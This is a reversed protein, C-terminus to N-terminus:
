VLRAVHELLPPMARELTDYMIRYDEPGGGWPDEVIGDAPDPDWRRLLVIPENFAAVVDSPRREVGGRLRTAERLNNTDMVVLFLSEAFDADSVRRGRHGRLSHGRREGEEVTHRHAAQGIHDFNTGVSAVRLRARLVKHRGILTRAVAEAAPSRCHNGLCLFTLLM